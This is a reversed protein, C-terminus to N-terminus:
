VAEKVERVVCGPIERAGSAVAERALQNLLENFMGPRLRWFHRAAERADVVEVEHRTRLSTARAGGKAGAKDNEAKRAIADAKSADRLMAEAVERAAIDTAQSARLAEQAAAAKADAEKRAAEAKARKEAEIAMLFPTLAKKCADSILDCRALLPKYREQVAKAADDHPKKELVRMDDAKAKAKRAMDLLGAIADAEEQTKVTAGDLWNQAEGFVTAIAESALDFPTQEPPNNHGIGSTVVINM